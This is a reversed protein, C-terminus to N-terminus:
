SLPPQSRRPRQGHWAEVLQSRWVLAAVLSLSGAAAAALLVSEAGSVFGAFLLLTGVVGFACSVVLAPPRRPPESM